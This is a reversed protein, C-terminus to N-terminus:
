MRIAFRTTNTTYLAYSRHLLAVTPAPLDSLKGSFLRWLLVHSPDSVASSHQTLLPRQYGMVACLCIAASAQPLDEVLVWHPTGVTSLIWGARALFHSFGCSLGLCAIPLLIVHLCGSSPPFSLTVPSSPAYTCHSLEPRHGIYLRHRHGRQSNVVDDESQFNRISSIHMRRCHRISDAAHGIDPGSVACPIHLPIKAISGSNFGLLYPVSIAIYLCCMFSLIEFFTLFKAGRM